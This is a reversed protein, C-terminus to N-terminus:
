LLSPDPARISMAERQCKSMSIFGRWDRRQEKDRQSSICRALHTQGPPKIFSGTHSTSSIFSCKRYCTPGSSPRTTNRSIRADPVDGTPARERMPDERPSNSKTKLKRKRRQSAQVSSHCTNSIKLCFTPVVHSIRVDRSVNCNKKKLLKRGRQECQVFHTKEEPPSFDSSVLSTKLWLTILTNHHALFTHHM